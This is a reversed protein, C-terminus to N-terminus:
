WNKVKRSEEEGQERGSGGEKEERREKRL